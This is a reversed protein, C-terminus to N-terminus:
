MEHHGHSRVAKDWTLGLGVVPTACKGMGLWRLVKLKLHQSNAMPNDLMCLLHQPVSDRSKGLM